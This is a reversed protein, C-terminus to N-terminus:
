KVGTRLNQGTCLLFKCSDAIREMNRPNVIQALEQESKCNTTIITPRQLDYRTGLIEYLRSLPSSEDWETLAKHGAGLDDLVLLRVKELREVIAHDSNDKARWGKSILAALKSVNIFYVSVGEQMVRKAISIALGTKGVGFDGALVLGTNCDPWLRIWQGIYKLYPQNGNITSRYSNLTVGALRGETPINAMLLQSKWERDQEAKEQELMQTKNAEFEAGHKQRVREAKLRIREALDVM